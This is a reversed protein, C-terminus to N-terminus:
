HSRFNKLEKLSGNWNFINGDSTRKRCQSPSSTTRYNLSTKWGEYNIAEIEASFEYVDRADAM